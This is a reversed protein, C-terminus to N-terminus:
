PAAPVAREVPINTPRAAEARRAPRTVNMRELLHDGVRLANAMITLAPNAAASSPFFSADVVYHNDLNHAKCNVDLVPTKPDRGFRITGNQHAAGALPIRQGVFLNRAFLGELCDHGRIKCQPKRQMLDRSKAILRRHGEENNPRYQLEIEGDRNVTVCNNPDPLDESTLWFDRSHQAMKELTSSPAVAPAGAKLTISDLKGVFGIHGMPLDWDKTGFYFDNVSLSKPFVTPESM